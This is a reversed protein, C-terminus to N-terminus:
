FLSEQVPAPARVPAVAEEFRDGLGERLVNMLMRAGRVAGAEAHNNFFVFTERTHESLDRLKKVWARLDDRTYEYLYRTVNDGTRWMGTNRGHFRVYGIDSTVDARPELLEPLAPMDPNCWGFGLERVLKVHEKKQWARHRFEIVVPLGRLADGLSELYRQTNPSPEFQNPFQALLAGLKQADRMPTLADILQQVEDSIRGYANNAPHTASAPLKFTFRFDAPTRKAMSEVTSTAPVGYYSSDIEVASFCGAYYPLMEANRITAPYFGGIWDKYAYGCTGIYLM